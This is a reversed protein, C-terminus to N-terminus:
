LNKFRPAGMNGSMGLLCGLNISANLFLRMITKIFCVLFIVKFVKFIILIYLMDSLEITLLYYLVDANLAHRHDDKM